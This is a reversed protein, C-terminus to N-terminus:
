ASVKRQHVRLACQAAANGTCQAAIVFVEIQEGHGAFGRSWVTPETSDFCLLFRALPRSRAFVLGDFLCRSSSFAASVAVRQLPYKETHGHQTWGARPWMDGKCLHGATLSAPEMLVLEESTATATNNRLAAVRGLLEGTLHPVGSSHGSGTVPAYESPQARPM